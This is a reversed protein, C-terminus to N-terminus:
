NLFAKKEKKEIHQYKNKVSIFKFDMMLKM